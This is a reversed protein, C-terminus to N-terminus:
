NDFDHLECQCLSAKPIIGTPTDEPLVHSEENLISSDCTSISQLKLEPSNLDLGVVRALRKANKERNWQEERGLTTTSPFHTGPPLPRAKCTQRSAVLEVWLRGAPILPPRRLPLRRTTGPQSAGATALRLTTSLIEVRLPLGPSLRQAM